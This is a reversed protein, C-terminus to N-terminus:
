YLWDHYKELLINKLKRKFMYPSRCRKINDNLSNWYKPGQFSVCNISKSSYVCPIHFDDSHRTQYSHIQSNLMFMNQFSKPLNNSISQHMFIGLQLSYIDSVKLTRHNLFLPNSHARFDVCNIIRLARKQLITIRNLLYASSKGWALIGYSIWPLILASYINYM